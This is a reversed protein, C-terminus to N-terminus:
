RPPEVRDHSFMTRGNVSCVTIQLTHTRVDDIASLELPFCGTRPSPFTIADGEAFHTIESQLTWRPKMGKVNRAECRFRHGTGGKCKMEIYTPKPAAITDTSLTALLLFLIM